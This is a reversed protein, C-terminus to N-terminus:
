QWKCHTRVTMEAFAARHTGFGISKVLSKTYLYALPRKADKARHSTCMAGVSVLYATKGCVRQCSFM